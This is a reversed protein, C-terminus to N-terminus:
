VRQKKEQYAIFLEQNNIKIKLSTLLQKKWNNTKQEVALSLNPRDFGQVLIEANYNCLKHIIDERTNKDATATFSAIIAEPFIQSLKSLEEYQPRFSAGWKSICHAEDIAFMAIDIDQLDYLTKESM